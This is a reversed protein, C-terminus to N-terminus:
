MSREAKNYNKQATKYLVACFFCFVIVATDPSLRNMAVVRPALSSYVPRARPLLPLCLRVLLQFLGFHVLRSVFFLRLPVCGQLIGQMQVYVSFGLLSLCACCGYLAAAGGRAALDACGASIELAASLLPQLGPPLFLSIVGSITRFFVVCGCLHLCSDAAQSVADSFSSQQPPPLAAPLPGRHKEQPRLWPALLAACLLNAALQLAYLAAGAAVSGLLQGGVCGIVFGPSSCCGLVLFRQGRANDLRGGRRLAATNHACVAYGGLWSSVLAFWLGRGPLNATLWSCLVLFPFLAPLLTYLCLSVGQRFSQAAAQPQALCAAGLALAALLCASRGLRTKNM